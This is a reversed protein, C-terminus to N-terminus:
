KFSDVISTLIEPTPKANQPERFGVKAIRGLVNYVERPLTDVVTDSMFAVDEQIANYEALKTLESEVLTKLKQLPDNCYNLRNCNTLAQTLNEFAEQIEKSM